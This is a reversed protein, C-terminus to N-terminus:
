HVSLSFPTSYLYLFRDYLEYRIMGLMVFIGGVWGSTQSNHVQKFRSKMIAKPWLIFHQASLWISLSHTAHPLTLAVSLTTPTATSYIVHRTMHAPLLQESLSFPFSPNFSSNEEEEVWRDKTLRFSCFLTNANYTFGPVSLSESLSHKQNIIFVRLLFNIKKKDTKSQFAISIQLQFAQHTHLFSDHRLSKRKQATHCSPLHFCCLFFFPFTFVIYFSPIM